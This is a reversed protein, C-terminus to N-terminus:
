TTEFIDPTLVFLKYTVLCLYCEGRGGGEKRFGGGGGGFSSGGSGGFSDGAGGFGGRNGGGFSPTSSSASPSENWDGSGANGFGSSPKSFRSGGGSGGGFESRSNNFRGGSPKDGFRNRFISVLICWLAITTKDFIIGLLWLSPKYM